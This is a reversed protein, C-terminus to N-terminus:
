RLYPYFILWLSSYFTPKLWSFNSKPINVESPSGKGFYNTHLGFLLLPLQFVYSVYISLIGGSCLSCKMYQALCYHGAFKGSVLGILTSTGKRSADKGQLQKDPALSGYDGYFGISDSYIVM